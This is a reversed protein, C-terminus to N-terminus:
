PRLTVRHQSRQRRSPEGQSKGISLTMGTAHLHRHSLKLYQPGTVPGAIKISVERAAYDHDHLRTPFLTPPCLCASIINGPQRQHQWQKLYVLSTCYYIEQCGLLHFIHGNTIPSTLAVFPVPINM